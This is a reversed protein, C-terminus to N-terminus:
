RFLIRYMVTSTTTVSSSFIRVAFRVVGSATGYFIVSNVNLLIYLVVGQREYHILLATFIKAPMAPNVINAFKLWVEEFKLTKGVIAATAEFKVDNWWEDDTMLFEAHLVDTDDIIRQHISALNLILINTNM